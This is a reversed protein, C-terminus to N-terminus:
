ISAVVAAVTVAVASAYLAMSAEEDGAACASVAFKLTGAYETDAFFVTDYAAPDCTNDAAVYCWAETCWDVGFNAGGEVCSEDALDWAECSSGYEAPYGADTFLSAPPMGNEETSLCDCAANVAAITLVAFTSKM